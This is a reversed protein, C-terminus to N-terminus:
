IYQVRGLMTEADVARHIRRLSAVIQGISRSRQACFVIGCHQFGRRSLGLFDSDQTFLVRGEAYAYALQVTDPQGLLGADTSTVVDIAERRLASAIAHSVHEDLQFRIEAM